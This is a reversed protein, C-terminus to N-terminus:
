NYEVRSVGKRPSFLFNLCAQEPIVRQGIPNDTNYVRLPKRLYGAEIKVRWYAFAAM